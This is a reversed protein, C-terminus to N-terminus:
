TTASAVHTFSALPPVKEKLQIMTAPANRTRGRAQATRRSARAARARRARVARPPPARGCALVVRGGCRGKGCRCAWCPLAQGARARSRHGAGQPSPTLSPRLATQRGARTPQRVGCCSTASPAYIHARMSSREARRQWGGDDCAALVVAASLFRGRSPPTARQNRLLSLLLLLRRAVRPSPPPSSAHRHAANKEDGSLLFSWGASVLRCQECVNLGMEKTQFGKRGHMWHM